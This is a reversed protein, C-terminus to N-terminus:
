RTKALSQKATVSDCDGRQALKRKLLGVEDKYQKTVRAENNLERARWIKNLSVLLHEILAPSIEGKTQNRVDHALKHADAPIWYAMEEQSRTM